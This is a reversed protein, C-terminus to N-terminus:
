HAQLVASEDSEVAERDAIEQCNVCYSAWPVARLRKSSIPNGCRMCEGYTGDDIRQLALRISQLRNFDSEIRRIAFEREAAHQVRDITDPPNQVAIEDRLLPQELDHLMARLINRSEESREPSMTMREM